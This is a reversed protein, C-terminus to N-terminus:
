WNKLTAGQTFGMGKQIQSALIMILGPDWETQIAEYNPKPYVLFKQVLMESADAEGKVSGLLRKYESWSAKRALYVEGPRDTVEIQFIRAGPLEARVEDVIAQVNVQEAEM